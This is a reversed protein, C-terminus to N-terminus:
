LLYVAVTDSLSGGGDGIRLILEFAGDGKSESFRSWRESGRRNQSDDRVSRGGKIRLISEFAGSRGGGESKWWDAVDADNVSSRSEILLYRGHHCNFREIIHAVGLGEPRRHLAEAGAFRVDGGDEAAAGVHLALDDAM